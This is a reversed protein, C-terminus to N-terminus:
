IVHLLNMTLLNRFLGHRLCHSTLPKKIEASNAVEKLYENYKQNTIRPLEYKYKDAIREAEPLFLTIYNEDTKQRNSQIAKYGDIDRLSDKSFKMLDAYALGTFCQFLYLDKTRELYGYNPTYEKLKDIEEETLFVPDKSKGKSNKFLAYPNTGKFLGRNIVEQIYGKFLSHRKYLTPESSITKRLETDLGIINSYTLDDFTKIKGYEKLRRIFSHNYEIVTVSANKRRLESEIFEVITITSYDAKNWHKVSITM